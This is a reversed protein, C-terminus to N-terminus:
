RDPRGPLWGRFDVGILGGPAEAPARGDYRPHRPRVPRTIRGRGNIQGSRTLEKHPVMHRVGKLFPNRGIARLRTSSPRLSRPRRSEGGNWSSKRANRKVALVTASAGFSPENNPDLGPRIGEPLGEPHRDARRDSRDDEIHSSTSTGTAVIVVAGFLQQEIHGAELAGDAPGATPVLEGQSNPARLARARGVGLGKRELPRSGCSCRTTLPTAM